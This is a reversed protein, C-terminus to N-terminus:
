RGLGRVPNLVFIDAGGTGVNAVDRTKPANRVQPVVRERARFFMTSIVVRRNVCGREHAGGPRLVDQAQTVAPPM